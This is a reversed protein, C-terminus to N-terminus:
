NVPILTHLVLLFVDVIKFIEIFVNYLFIIACRIRTGLNQGRRLKQVSFLNITLLNWCTDKSKIWYTVLCFLVLTSTSIRFLFKFWLSYQANLGHISNKLTEQTDSHKNEAICILVYFIFKFCVLDNNEKYTEEIYNEM